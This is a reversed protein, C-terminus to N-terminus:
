PPNTMLRWYLGGNLLEKAWMRSHSYSGYEGDMANSSAYSRCTDVTAWEGPADMRATM